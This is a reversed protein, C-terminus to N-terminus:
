SAAEASRVLGYFFEAAAGTDHDTLTTQSAALRLEVPADAPVVSQKAQRVLELMQSCGAAVTLQDATCNVPLCVAGLMAEASVAGPTLVMVDMGTRESRLMAANDGLAKELLAQIPLQQRDQYLLIRLVDEGKVDAPSCLTFPTFERRLHRELATSMRLVRTSGDAMQLAIGLGVAAPLKKFISEECGAFSCLPQGSGESFRYALTGGCTLAPAALRLGGLVARVARPSRQSFVTLRGGRSSFLQLVDRVVQPMNGDGALLLHDLDCLVLTSDLLKTMCDGEQAICYLPHFVGSAGLRLPGHLKTICNHPGYVPDGAVPHQISAMHVRIQHTRGTKLRCELLTFGGFRELVKYGTYAYKTHPESAPYVAMKKRDTKSRGLNAEVFGEDQAFGGYVVTQYAREVSHVAMQQSLGIHTADDKAVVLLGSTDKDIRHVIGPRIEGGIGSLSGKCHWLLANVLTGDPNGPAPHVVMGKPKNVVLLHDDEYVIDLPIDQPVAEIPKADPIELLITDGAKLKLSKAISKGNCLVHGDAVLGQLASRSLGTDEGSLFRDIRQGAAEAEVIFERQEM